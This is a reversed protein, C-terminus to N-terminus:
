TATPSFQGGGIPYLVYQCVDTDSQRVFVIHLVNAASAYARGYLLVSACTYVFVCVYVCVRGLASRM